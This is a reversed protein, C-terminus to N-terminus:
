KAVGEAETGESPMEPAEVPTEKAAGGGGGKTEGKNTVDALELLNYKKLKLYDPLVSICCMGKIIEVVVSIEPETLNVKNGSNKSTVVDAVEKIVDDRSIANNYRRNFVVSFTKPEQLVYKDCLSGVADTISRLNARCVVEVPILRLLFKTRQVKTAAIDRAIKVGLGVPDDLSTAIFVCNTVGTDAVNFKHFKKQNRQKEKDLDKQLAKSIDEEEEDDSKKVATPEEEPPPDNMSTDMYQNLINYCERICDKERFNCTAMFGKMGPELFSLKRHKMEENKYNNKGYNKRKAESM